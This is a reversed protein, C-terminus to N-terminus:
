SQRTAKLYVYSRQKLKSEHVMQFIPGQSGLVRWKTGKACARILHEKLVGFYNKTAWRYEYLKSKQAVRSIPYVKIIAQNSM